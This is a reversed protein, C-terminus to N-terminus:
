FSWALIKKNKNKKREVNEYDEHAKHRSIQKM